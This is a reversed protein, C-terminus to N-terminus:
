FVSTLKKAKKALAKAEKKDHPTADGDKVNDWDLLDVTARPDSSYVATLCGGSIEVIVESAKATAHGPQVMDFPQYADKGKVKLLDSDVAEGDTDEYDVQEGAVFEQSVFRGKDTDFTQIVFGTTIKKVLM